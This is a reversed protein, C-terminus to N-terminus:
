TEFCCMRDNLTVFLVAANKVVVVDDSGAVLVAESDDVAVLAVEVVGDAGVVGDAEVAVVVLSGVSESLLALRDLPAIAPITTPARAANAIAPMRMKKKHQRRRFFSAWFCSLVLVSDADPM